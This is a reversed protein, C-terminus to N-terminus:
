SNSSAICSLVDYVCYLKGTDVHLRFLLDDGVPSYRFCCFVLMWEVASVCGLGM